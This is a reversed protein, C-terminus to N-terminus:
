DRLLSYILHDEYQGNIQVYQRLRGELLFGLSELLRISPANDPMCYAEIRRLELEEFAIQLM